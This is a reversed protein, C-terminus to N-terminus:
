LILNELVEFVRETLLGVPSYGIRNLSMIAVMLIGMIYREKRMVGDYAKDPLLATLVRSGDLPPVPLLNFVALSVNIYSAYLLLMGAAQAYAAPLRLYIRSRILLLFLVAMVLNSLPGALATLAFDRKRHRFNRTNVPVPKAYGVGILLICVTGMFDLHRVPNLSIRGMRRGTDDGLRDAAWAHACEHVPFCVLLVIARSILMMLEQNHLINTM